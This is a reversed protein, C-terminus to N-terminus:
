PVPEGRVKMRRLSERAERAYLAAAAWYCAAGAVIGVLGIHRGITAWGFSTESVALATLGTLLLATAAKGTPNVAIRPLGSRELVPWLSLLAVDRVIVIAALGPPLAGRALLAVCLAAIFVRDALPDLLKGLDSVARTRRAIYGDLFDTAAGTGYVVVAAEERGSTFLWLFVPVSSLRAVSIVNPVTLVRRDVGAPGAAQPPIEV